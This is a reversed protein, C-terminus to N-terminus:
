IQRDRQKERALRRRSVPDAPEFGSGVLVGVAARLSHNKQTQTAGWSTAVFDRLSPIKPVGVLLQTIYSGPSIHGRHYIVGRGVKVSGSLTVGAMAVGM